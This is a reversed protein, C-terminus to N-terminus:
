HGALRESRGTKIITEFYALSALANEFRYFLCSVRTTQHRVPGVLLQFSENKVPLTHNAVSLEEPGWQHEVLNLSFYNFFYM